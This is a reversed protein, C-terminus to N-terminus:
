FQYAITASNPAFNLTTRRKERQLKKNGFFCMTLGGITSISGGVIGLAGMAGMFSGEAGGYNTNSYYTVGDAAGVMAGGGAITGIGLLTFVIGTYRLRPSVEKKQRINFNPQSIFGSVYTLPTAKLKIESSYTKLIQGYVGTNIFLVTLSLIITKIKRKMDRVSFHKVDM